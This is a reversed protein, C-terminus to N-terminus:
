ISENRYFKSESRKELYLNFSVFYNGKHWIDGKNM